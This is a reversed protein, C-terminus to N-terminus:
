RGSKVVWRREKVKVKGILFRALSVPDASPGRNGENSFPLALRDRLGVYGRFTMMIKSCGGWPCTRLFSSECTREARPPVLSALAAKVKFPYGRPKSSHTEPDRRPTPDRRPFAGHPQPRLSRSRVARNLGFLHKAPSGGQPEARPALELQWGFVLGSNGNQPRKLPLVVRGCRM